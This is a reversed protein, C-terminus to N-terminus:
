KKLFDKNMDAKTRQINYKNRKIRDAVSSKEAHSSMMSNIFKDGKSDDKQRLAEQEDEQIYRSVNQKRNDERWTANSMMEELKRKKEESTLKRPPSYKRKEKEGSKSSKRTEPTRSRRRPSRSRRCSGPSRSRPEPSIKRPKESKKDAGTQIKNKNVILGYKKAKYRQDDESSDESSSEDSSDSSDSDDSSPQRESKYHRDPRQQQKQHKSSYHDSERRKELVEGRKDRSRKREDAEDSDIDHKNRHLKNGKRYSNRHRSNSDSDSDQQHKNRTHFDGHSKLHKANRNDFDKRHRSRHFDEQRRSYRENDSKGSDNQHRHHSEGHRPKDLKGKQKKNLISLYKQMIDDDESDDRKKKKKKEKKHQKELSKKLMKMKIPNELLRKRAEEERKRIAFLPDERAKAAMDLAINAKIREGFIDDQKPPEEEKEVHRDVRKGLLYDEECPKEGKYMWDMAPASMERERLMEKAKRKETEEMIM